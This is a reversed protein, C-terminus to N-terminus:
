NIKAGALPPDDGDEGDDKQPKLGEKVIEGLADAIARDRDKAAHLYIMAAKTSSHGMRAMLEKLSAVTMAALTNGTHRLDHIHIAPLDADKIAKAWIKTFNSRRLQAGKEGVFVLGDPEAESFRQLHWTLDGIVIEPLVVARAGADSKPRGTVLKGTKMESVSAEIRVTRAKLDLNHRRLAALEGWRMSGFTALLVLARFRPPVAAALTFVESVTLVPREEPREVGANKIRCPNKKILDDEVATNLIGRLLRYAKAVTSAGPGDDSM